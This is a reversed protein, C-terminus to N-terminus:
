AKKLEQMEKSIGRNILKAEKTRMFAQNGMKAEQQSM